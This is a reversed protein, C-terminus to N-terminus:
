RGVTVNSFTPSLYTLNNKIKTQWGDRIAASQDGLAGLYADAGLYQEFAMTQIARFLLRENDAYDTEDTDTQPWHVIARDTIDQLDADEFFETQYRKNYISRYTSAQADVEDFIYARRLEALQPTTLTPM